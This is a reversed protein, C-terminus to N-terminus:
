ERSRHMDVNLIVVAGADVEIEKIQTEYEHASVVVQYRGPSLDIEFRGSVDPKLTQKLGPLFVSAELPKGTTADLVIGRLEGPVVEGTAVLSFDLIAVEGAQGRRIVKQMDKHGPARAVVEILGEGSPLPPSEFEGTEPELEAVGVGTVRVSAGNIPKGNTRSTVAGKILFIPDVTKFVPAPACGGQRCVKGAGCDTDQTCAVPTVPKPSPPPSEGTGILADYGFMGAGIVAAVGGVALLVNALKTESGAQEYIAHSQVQSRDRGRDVADDYTSQAKVGFIAGVGMTIGGAGALAVGSWRLLPSSSSARELGVPPTLAPPPTETHLARDPPKLIVAAADIAPSEEEPSEVDPAVTSEEPKSPAVVAPPPPMPPEVGLLQALSGPTIADSLEAGSAASFPGATDIGNKATVYLHVLVEVGEGGSAVSAYLLDSRAKRALKKLCPLPKKRKNCKVLRRQGNRVVEEGRVHELPLQDVAAIIAADVAATDAASVDSSSLASFHTVRRGEARVTSAAFALAGAAFMALAQRM